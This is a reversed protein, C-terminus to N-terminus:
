HCVIIGRLVGEEVELALPFGLPLVTVGESPFLLAGAAFAFGATRAGCCGSGTEGPQHALREGSRFNSTTPATMDTTPISVKSTSNEACRLSTVLPMNFIRVNVN